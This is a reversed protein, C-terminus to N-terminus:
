LNKTQFSEVLELAVEFKDNLQRLVQGLEIEEPTSQKQLSKPWHSSQLLFIIEEIHERNKWMNEDLKHPPQSEAEQVLLREGPFVISPKLILLLILTSTM